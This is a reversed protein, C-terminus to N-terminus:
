GIFVSSARMRCPASCWSAFCCARRAFTRPMNQRAWDGEGDPRADHLEQWDAQVQRWNPNAKAVNKLM